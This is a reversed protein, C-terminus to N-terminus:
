QLVPYLEDGDAIEEQIAEENGINGNNDIGPSTEADVNPEEESNIYPGAYVPGQDPIFDDNNNNNNNNNNDNNNDMAPEEDVIQEVDEEEVNNDM